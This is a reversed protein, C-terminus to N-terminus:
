ICCADKCTFCTKSSNLCCDTHQNTSVFGAFPWCCGRDSNVELSCTFLQCTIRIKNNIKNNVNICRDPPDSKRVCCDNLHWNMCWETRSDSSRNFIDHWSTLLNIIEFCNSKLCQGVRVQSYRVDELLFSYFCYSRSNQCKCLDSVRFNNLGIIGCDSKNNAKFSDLLFHQHDKNIWMKWVTSKLDPTEAHVIGLTCSCVTHRSQM